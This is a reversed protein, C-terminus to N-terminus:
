VNKSHTPCSGGGAVGWRGGTETETRAGGGGGRCEREARGWDVSMPIVNQM